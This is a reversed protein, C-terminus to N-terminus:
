LALLTKATDCRHQLSEFFRAVHLGDVLGHHVSLAVPLMWKSEQRRCKGIVIKPISYSANRHRPHGVETFSLWPVVSFHIIDDHGRDVLENKQVRVRDFEAANAAAFERFDDSATIFGFGFTEDDRLMTSGVHVRDHVIVEEGRIRMRLEEVCNVAGIALFLTTASFSPGGPANCITWPSTADVSTCIDLWPHDMADFLDFHPRRPWTDLSVRQYPM